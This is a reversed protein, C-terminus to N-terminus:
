FVIIVIFIYLFHCNLFFLANAHEVGELIKSCVLVNVTSSQHAHQFLTEAVHDGLNKTRVLVEVHNYVRVLAVKLNVTVTHDHGVTLHFILVLLNGQAISLLNFGVVLYALFYRLAHVKRLKAATSDQVETLRQSRLHEFQNVIRKIILILITHALHNGTLHILNPLALHQQHIILVVLEDQRLRLLNGVVLIVLSLGDTRHDMLHGVLIVVRLNDQATGTGYEQLTQQLSLNGLNGVTQDRHLADGTHRSLTCLNGHLTVILTNIGYTSAYTHFTAAHMTDNAFQVVLVDVHNIVSRVRFQKDLTCQTGGLNRTNIDILLVM